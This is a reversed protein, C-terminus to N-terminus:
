EVRPVIGLFEDENEVCQIISRVKNSMLSKIIIAFCTGGFALLMFLARLLNTNSSVPTVSSAEDLVQITDSGTINIMESTFAEAVANAVEIALSPDQNFVAINIVYSNQSVSVQLMKQIEEGSLDADKILSAAYECVKQSSVVDSYNVMTQLETLTIDASGYTACYVSSKAGYYATTSDATLFLGAFLGALTIFIIVIKYNWLQMFALRFDEFQIERKM